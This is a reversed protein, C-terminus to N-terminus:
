LSSGFTGVIDGPRGSLPSGYKGTQGCHEDFFDIVGSHENFHCLLQTKKTPIFLGQQVMCGQIGVQIM